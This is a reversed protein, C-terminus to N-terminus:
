PRRERGEVCRPAVLAEREFAFRAERLTFRTCCDPGFALAGAPMYRVRTSPIGIAFLLVFTWGTWSSASRASRM